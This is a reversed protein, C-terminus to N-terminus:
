IKKAYDKLFQRESPALADRGQENIKDLIENLKQESLEDDDDYDDWFSDYLGTKIIDEGGQNMVKMKEELPKEINQKQSINKKYLLAKIIRLQGVTLISMVIGFSLSSAGALLINFGYVKYSFYKLVIWIVVTLLTITIISIQPLILFKIKQKLNLLTYLVLIFISVGEFGALTINKDWSIITHVTGQLTIILFLFLLFFEKKILEELKPAIIFFAFTFLLIGEIQGPAFVFSIIRWFEFQNIVLSPKLSLLDSLFGGSFYDILYIIGALILIKKSFITKDYDM